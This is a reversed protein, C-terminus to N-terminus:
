STKSVCRGDCQGRNGMHAPIWKFSIGLEIHKIRYLSEYIEYINKQSSFSQLYFLLSDSCIVAMKVKNPEVWQLAKSITLM